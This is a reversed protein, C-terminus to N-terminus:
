TLTPEFLAITPALDTRFMLHIGEASLKLETEFPEINANFSYIFSQRGVPIEFINPQNIQRRARELPEYLDIEFVETLKKVLFKNLLYKLLNDLPTPFNQVHLNTIQANSILLKLNQAVLSCEIDVEFGGLRPDPFNKVSIRGTLQLKITIRNDGAHQITIQEATLPDTDHQRYRLPGFTGEGIPVVIKNPIPLSEYRIEANIVLKIKEM